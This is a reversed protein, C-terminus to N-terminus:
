PREDAVAGFAAAYPAAEHWGLSTALEFARAAEAATAAPVAAAVGAGLEVGAERVVLRGWAFAAEAHGARGAERYWRRAEFGDPAVGLGVEYLRGLRYMAEAHGSEAAARYWGAATRASWPAGLGAEALYGLMFRASADGDAAQASWAARAAVFEGRRYADFPDIGAPAAGARSAVWWQALVFLVVSVGLAALMLGRRRRTAEEFMLEDEVDGDVDPRRPLRASPPRAPGVEDGGLGRWATPVPRGGTPGLDEGIRRVTPVDPPAGAAGAAAASAAAADEARARRSARGIAFEPVPRSGDSAAGDATGVSPDSAARRGVRWGGADVADWGDIPPFAPRSPDAAGRAFGDADDDEVDDHVLTGDEDSDITIPEPDRAVPVGFAPERPGGAGAQPETTGHDAVDEDFWVDDAVPEFPPPGDVAPTDLLSAPEDAEFIYAVRRRLPEEDEGAPAEEVPAVPSRADADDDARWPAEHHPEPEPEAAPEPEPEPEPEVEPEPEPEPQPEPEPEPQPEPEPEPEAPRGEVPADPAAATPAAIGAQKIEDPDAARIVVRVGAAEFTRAIADAKEPRLARTIPGTRGEILQRVREQPMGLREGVRAAVIAVDADPVLEIVEVVCANPIM